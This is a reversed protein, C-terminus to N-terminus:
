PVALEELRRGVEYNQLLGAFRESGPGYAFLPVLAGTHRGTSYEIVLTDGSEPLTLGGTEHDATVVLLTGPTRRAFDLAVGVARDFELMEATIEALPRNAHGTVDTGESEFLAVFGDPDRSLRALAAEVMAPITPEREGAADMEGPVFLGVLPRDDPSYAALEAADSVCASRQCLEGLLDRRDDRTAAEFHARGGGLLVELGAAAFQEAIPDVWYRSPSNAVFAAPTADVVATTTVVGTAKGRREAAQFWTEEAVCGAPVATPTRGSPPRPCDPGM